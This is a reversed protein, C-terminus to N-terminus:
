SSFASISMCGTITSVLILFYEIYNPSICFNKHKRSRLENQEIEELLYNRTEDIDKFRLAQTLNKFHNYIKLYVM